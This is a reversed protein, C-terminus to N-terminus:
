NTGVAGGRNGNFGFTSSAIQRYILPVSRYEKKIFWKQKQGVRPDEGKLNKKKKRQAGHVTRIAKTNGLLSGKKGFQLRKFSPNKGIPDHNQERFFARVWSKRM